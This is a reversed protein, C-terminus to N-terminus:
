LLLFPPVIVPAEKDMEERSVEVGEEEEQDEQDQAERKARGEVAPREERRAVQLQLVLLGPVFHPPPPIHGYFRLLSSSLM